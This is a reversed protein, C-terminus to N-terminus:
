LFLGNSVLELLYEANSYIICHIHFAALSLTDDPTMTMVNISISQLCM